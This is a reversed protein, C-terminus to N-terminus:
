LIYIDCDPIIKRIYEKIKKELEEDGNLNEIQIRPRKYYDSYVQAEVGFEKLAEEAVDRAKSM